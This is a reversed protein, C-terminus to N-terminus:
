VCVRGDDDGFRSARCADDTNVYEGTAGQTTASHITRLQDTIGGSKWKAKEKRAVDCMMGTAPPVFLRRSDLPSVNGVTDDKSPKVYWYRGSRLGHQRGTRLVGKGGRVSWRRIPGAGTNDNTESRLRRAM